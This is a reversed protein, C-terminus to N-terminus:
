SARSGVGIEDFSKIAPFPSELPARANGPRLCLLAHCGAGCAADLEKAVDSVFLLRDAPHGLAGAIRLYSESSTKFCYLSM